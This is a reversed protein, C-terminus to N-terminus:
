EVAISCSPVPDIPILTRQASGLPLSPPRLSRPWPLGTLVGGISVTRPGTEGAALPLELGIWARRVEESAEGSPTAIIRIFIVM